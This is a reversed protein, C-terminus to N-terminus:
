KSKLRPSLHLHSVQDRRNTIQQDFQCTDAIGLRPHLVHGPYGHQVGGQSLLSYSSSSPPLNFDGTLIVPSYQRIRERWAIRDLHALMVGTQALRVEKRRPSFLLHTTAVYFCTEDSSQSSIPSLGVILGVNDKDLLGSDNKNYEVEETMTISFKSKDVFIACGDDKGGTRQKFAVEYGFQSFWPQIDCKFINSDPSNYVPFGTFQVEQLTVIDPHYTEVQHQIMRWRHGWDVWRPDTNVYLHQHQAAYVPALINYSMLRLKMQDPRVQGGAESVARGLGTLKWKRFKELKNVGTMETDLESEM